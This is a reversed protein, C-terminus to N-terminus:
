TVVFVAAVGKRMNRMERFREKSIQVLTDGMMSVAVSHLGAVDDSKERCLDHFTQAMGEGYRNRFGHPLLRLLWGYVTRYRRVISDSAM